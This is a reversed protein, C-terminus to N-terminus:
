TPSLLLVLRPTSTDRNVATRLEDLDHLDRLEAAYAPHVKYAALTLMAVALLASLRYM